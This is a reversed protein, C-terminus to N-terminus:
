KEAEELSLRALLYSITSEAGQNLNISSEGIGDYCGGTTEDYVSQKLFNKGLFWHFATIANEKYKENKTIKYALILTQVMSATDVPQQDFYARNGNKLYWGKHGIPMFIGDKFTISSLFKLTSEAIELYEKNNTALYAYFLAEPLKSNSYTLYKEFWIWDDSASNKYLSVLHKSLKTIKTINESSSKFKNYFYLGLIIFAAARPSKINDTVNLSSLFIKEAKDKIEDQIDETSLLFGLSWMARGYADESGHKLNIKKNIDVFNLLKGDSQQVYKIFDLYINISKLRADNKFVSYHMCSVIMARANDDLTYGSGKDRTTNNSFQIVGFNDTIKILHKLRIKPFIKEYNESLRGYKDFTKMYALAVNPWTMHRTRTYANIEINKKLSADSLLRLIGDAFSKPNNFEALIGKGKDLAEKAHLFPTSICARGCGMAYSLTGSVAQDPNNNSCIYIDAAKLYKKIESLTVYKNYFKVNKHLGLEKVKKELFNRYSEGKEKRVVPHTAGIILYLINPFKKVVEPLADIVSEYGKNSGMLGFSVLLIKNKYGIKEKEKKSDTFPVTPIGHPIVKIDNEIDYEDRLIESANNTMVVFCATKRAISQVVKKMKDNPKPFVSHLTVIMPKEMIEMFPILYDGYQGGFIGFEHQINVAKISNNKNIKKATDIYEQINSDDMDFLVDESYNYINTTNKNMAVIKSKISPNFKRDIASTLDKTFTAIGCERPPFTGM